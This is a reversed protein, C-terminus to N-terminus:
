ANLPISPDDAVHVWVHVHPAGHFHWVFAPGELRWIDWGEAGSFHGQEYFAVHCKELGGQSKLCALVRERQAHRYPEILLQLIRQAQQKQADTMSAIAIGPFKGRPGRFGVANEPPAEKLLALGRQKDDLQRFLENAAVAQPWFVNGPHGPKERFGSAAHGYFVPGGFAQQAASGGDCRLTMHRSTLVFQFKDQGPTGFIAMSQEHGFGGVDDKLQKDFRAHWDPQILGEFIRRILQRQQSTYFDSDVAPETIRWNASVRTRLLGLKPDIHEWDFCVAKRQEVTLSQYLDQVLAEPPQKEDLAARARRLAGVGLTVAAPAAVLFSRRPLRSGTTRQV